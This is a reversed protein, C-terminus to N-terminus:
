PRPRDDDASLRATFVEARLCPLAGWAGDLRAMPCRVTSPEISAARLGSVSTPRPGSRRNWHPAPSGSAPTPRTVQQLDTPWVGISVDVQDFVLVAPYGRRGLARLAQTAGLLVAELPFALPKRWGLELPAPGPEPM